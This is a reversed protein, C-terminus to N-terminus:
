QCVSNFRNMHKSSTNKQQPPLMYSVQCQHSADSGWKVKLSDHLEEVRAYIVSGQGVNGVVDGHSNRVEAGFPITQNGATHASILVPYGHQTPYKLRVIAGAHPAVKQSTMELEVDDPLGKPDLEVENMEYANLYPVAAHGWPDVEVGSYSGVHAGTAGKAEVIAFTDGTYPTFVVGGQYGIITGSLGASSSHYGDGVSASASMDTYPSRYEGNITGSSGGGHNYNSGSVGYSFQHEKGGTGSIGVQEGVTGSTDQSVSATLQPMNTEGVSGLPVSLNLMFTNEMKGEGNRSRGANLSYSIRHFSNSYGLQYQLDSGTDQNWYNQAYGSVYLQGWGTPLEQNATVTLKNKPRYINNPNDGHEIADRTEMATLFDMYGSTSFRYAAISLNSGTDNIYKSYSVRYSQGSMSSDYGEGTWEDNDLHMRAQTVDFAIAGVPTNLATGLQLAYYNQSVQLGGYGTFLNTLGRQYALQYLLPNGSVSSDNLEGVVVDYHSAGPRLLQSVSAYPVSFTQTSGDAETVTVNLDGGYGTPYLDTIDFAGPAVTKEYIIQGNQRVTVKANTRAIGRVEPAFGRESQPLMRDDDVLEGGRFPLSDFVQGSTNSEGLVLRGGIQAIDRQVYTNIREYHSDGSNQWNYNGTHRFYWEGINLGANVGVYGSQYTKGRSHTSYFNSSYGLMAAPVGQDWLEPSVYGRGNDVLYLQPVSIDLRQTGSDYSPNVQPLVTNLPLCEGGEEGVRARVDSPLKTFDLGLKRIVDPKLCLTVSKDAQSQFTIPNKGIDIDNVYIDAVYDGPLASAGHEFRSLDIQDATQKSLFSPDFKLGDAPSTGGSTDSHVETETAYALPLASFYVGVGLSASVVCAIRSLPLM